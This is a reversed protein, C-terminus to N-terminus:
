RLPLFGCLRGTSVEQLLLSPEVIEDFDTQAAFLDIEAGDEGALRDADLFNV